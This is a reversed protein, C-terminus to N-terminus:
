GKKINSANEKSKKGHKQQRLILLNSFKNLKITSKFFKRKLKANFKVDAKYKKKLNVGEFINKLEVNVKNTGKLSLKSKRKSQRKMLFKLNIIGKPKHKILKNKFNINQSSKIKLGNINKRKIKYRANHKERFKMNRKIKIRNSLENYERKQIQYDHKFKLYNSYLSESLIKFYKKKLIQHKLRKLFSNKVSSFTSFKLSRKKKKRLYQIRKKIRNMRVKRFKNLNRKILKKKKYFERIFRLIFFKPDDELSEVNSFGELIKHVALKDSYRFTLLKKPFIAKMRRKAKAKLKGNKFLLEILSFFSTNKFREHFHLQLSDFTKYNMLLAVKKYIRRTSKLSLIVPYYFEFEFESLGLLIAFYDYKASLIVRLFIHLIKIFNFFLQFFSLFQFSNKRKVKMFLFEFIKFSNIIKIYQNSPSFLIKCIVYFDSFKMMQLTPFNGFHLLTKKSNITVIKKITKQKECFFDSSSHFLKFFSNISVLKRDKEDDEEVLPIIVEDKEYEIIESNDSVVVDEFPEVNALERLNVFRFKSVLSFLKTKNYMIRKKVKAKELFKFAFREFVVNEEEDYEFDIAGIIFNFRNLKLFGKQKSHKSFFAFNCITNLVPPLFYFCRNILGRCFHFAGKIFSGYLWWYTIKKLIKSFELFLVKLRRKKYDFCFDKLDEVLLELIGAIKFASKFFLDYSRKKGILGSNLNFECSFRNKIQLTKFKLHMLNFLRKGDVLREADLKIVNSLIKKRMNSVKSRVKINNLKKSWLLIKKRSYFISSFENLHKLIKALSGRGEKCSNDMLEVNLHSFSNPIKELKYFPKSLELNKCIHLNIVELRKLFYERKRLLSLASGYTFSVRFPSYFVLFLKKPLTEFYKIPHFPFELYDLSLAPNFTSVEFFFKIRYISFLFIFFLNRLITKKKSTISSSEHVGIKTLFYLFLIFRSNLWDVDILFHNKLYSLIITLHNKLVFRRFKRIPSIKKEIELRFLQNYYYAEIFRIIYENTWLKEKDWVDVYYFLYIRGKQEICKALKFTPTPVKLFNNCEIKFISEVKSPFSPKFFRTKIPYYFNESNILLPDSKFNLDPSLFSSM